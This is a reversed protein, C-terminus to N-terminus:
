PSDSVAVLKEDERGELTTRTCSQANFDALKDDQCVGRANLTSKQPAGKVNAVLKDEEKHATGLLAVDLSMSFLFHYMSQRAQSTVMDFTLNRMSITIEMPLFSAFQASGHM